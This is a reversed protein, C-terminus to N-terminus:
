SSQIQALQIYQLLNACTLVDYTHLMFTNMQRGAFANCNTLHTSHSVTSSTKSKEPTFALLTATTSDAIKRQMKGTSGTFSTGTVIVM